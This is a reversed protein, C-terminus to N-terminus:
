VARRSRKESPQHTRGLGNAKALESRRAAYSPAVIPYDVPLNWRQRYAEPSLDHATQLHRKLMAGKFGCDLCVIFDKNVSRRIPVAPELQAPTELKASQPDVLGAVSLYVQTILGPIDSTSVHNKRLYAAVIEAVQEKM